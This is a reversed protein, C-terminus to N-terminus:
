KIQNAIAEVRNSLTQLQGILQRAQENDMERLSTTLASIRQRLSAAERRAEEKDSLNGALREVDARIDSLIAAFAISQLRNIREESDQLSATREGLAITRAEIQRARDDLEKELAEIRTLLRSTQEDVKGAQDAARAVRTEVEQIKAGLQTKIDEAQQRTAGLDNAVQGARAEAANIRSNVESFLDPVQSTTEQIESSLGKLINIDSGYKTLTENQRGFEKFSQYGAEDLVRELQHVRVALVEERSRPGSPLGASLGAPLAAYDLNMADGNESLSEEREIVGADAAGGFLLHSRMLAVQSPANEHGSSLDIAYVVAWFVFVLLSTFVALRVWSRHAQSLVKFPTDFFPLTTIEPREPFYYYPEKLRSIPGPNAGAEPAGQEPDLLTQGGTPKRQTRREWFSLLPGVSYVALFGLAILGLSALGWIKMSKNISGLYARYAREDREKLYPEVQWIALYDRNAFGTIAAVEQNTRDESYIRNRDLYYRMWEKFSEPDQGSDLYENLLPLSNEWEADNTADFRATIWRGPGNRLYNEYDRRFREDKMLWNAETWQRYSSVNLGREKAFEALSTLRLVPNAKGRVTLFVGASSMALILLTLPLTKRWSRFFRGGFVLALALMPTAFFFFGLFVYLFVPQDHPLLPNWGQPVPVFSVFLLTALLIFALALQQGVVLLLFAAARGGWTKATLRRLFSGNLRDDIERRLDSLDEETTEIQVTDLARRLRALKVTAVLRAFPSMTRGRADLAALYERFIDTDRTIVTEM